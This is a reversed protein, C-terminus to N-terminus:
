IEFKIPKVERGADFDRIFKRAKAPLKIEEKDGIFVEGTGVFVKASNRARRIALAIPCLTCFHMQGNEIDKKTVNIIM